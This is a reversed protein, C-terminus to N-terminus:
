ILSTNYNSLQSKDRDIFTYINDKCEHDEKFQGWYIDTNKNKESEKRYNIELCVPCLKM